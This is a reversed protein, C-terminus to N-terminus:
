ATGEAQLARGERLVRLGLEHRTEKPSDEM